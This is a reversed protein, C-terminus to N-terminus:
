ARNKDEFTPGVSEGWSVDKMSTGSLLYSLTTVLTALVNWKNESIGKRTSQVLRGFKDVYLRLLVTFRRILGWRRIIGGRVLERRFNM